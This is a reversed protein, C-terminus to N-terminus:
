AAPAPPAPAAEDSEDATPAEDDMLPPKGNNLMGSHWERDAEALQEQGLQEYAEARLEHAREAIPGEYQMLSYSPQAAALDELQDIAASLEDVAEDYRELAILNEGRRARTVSPANVHADALELAHEAEGIAAERDGGAETATTKEMAALWSRLRWQPLHIVAGVITGVCGAIVGVVVLSRGRM